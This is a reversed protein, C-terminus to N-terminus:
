AAAPTGSRGVWGPRPPSIFLGRFKGVLRGPPSRPISHPLLGLRSQHATALYGARDTLLTGRRGPSVSSLCAAVFFLIAAQLFAKLTPEGRRPLGEEVGSFAEFEFELPEFEFELWQ